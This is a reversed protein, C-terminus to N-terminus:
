DGLGTKPKEIELLLDLKRNIMDLKNSLDTIYTPVDSKPYNESLQKIFERNIRDQDMDIGQSLTCTMASGDDEIVFRMEQLGKVTYSDIEPVMVFGDTTCIAATPVEPIEPICGTLLVILILYKM